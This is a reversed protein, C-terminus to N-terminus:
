DLGQLRDVPPLSNLFEFLDRDQVVAREKGPSPAYYNIVPNNSYGYGDQFLEPFQVSFPMYNSSEPQETLTEAMPLPQSLTLPYPIQNSPEPYQRTTPVMANEPEHFVIQEPQEVQQFQM